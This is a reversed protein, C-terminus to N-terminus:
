EGNHTSLKDFRLIKVIAYQLINLSFSEELLIQSLDLNWSTYGNILNDTSFYSDICNKLMNLISVIIHEFKILIINQRTLM